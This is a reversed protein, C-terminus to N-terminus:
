LPLPRGAAPHHRSACGPRGSAGFPWGVGPTTSIASTKARFGSERVDQEENALVLALM